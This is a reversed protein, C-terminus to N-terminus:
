DDAGQAGTNLNKYRKRRADEIERSTSPLLSEYKAAYWRAGTESKQFEKAEIMCAHFLLDGYYKSIFTTPNGASLKTPRATVRAKADGSGYVQDPTPVVYINDDDKESFYAPIAQESEVPAYMVLWEFSRRVVEIWENAGAADRVFVANVYIVDTGKPVTRNGGSITLDIWQEKNELDLDRLCRVHGKGIFDDLESVFEPDGADDAFAKIANRLSTYTYEVSM